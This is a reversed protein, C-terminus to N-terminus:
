IQTLMLFQIQLNISKVFMSTPTVFLNSGFDQLTHSDAVEKAVWNVLDWDLQSNTTAKSVVICFANRLSPVDDVYYEHTTQQL